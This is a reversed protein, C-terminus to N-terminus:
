SATVRPQWGTATLTGPKYTSASLTPVSPAAGSPAWLRRSPREFLQWPNRGVSVREINSLERNWAAQM